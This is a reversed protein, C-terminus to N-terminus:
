LVMRYCVFAEAAEVAIERGKVRAIDVM